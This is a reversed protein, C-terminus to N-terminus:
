QKEANWVRLLEAREIAKCQCSMACSCEFDLLTMARQLTGIARITWPDDIVSKEIEVERKTVFAPETPQM